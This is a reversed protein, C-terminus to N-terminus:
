EPASLVHGIRTEPDAEPDWIILKDEHDFLSEWGGPLPRDGTVIRDTHAGGDAIAILRYKDLSHIVWYRSEGNVRQKDSVPIFGGVRDIGKLSPWSSIRQDATIMEDPHAASDGITISRVYQVDDITHFIWHWYSSGRPQFDPVPLTADIRRVGKMAAWDALTRNRYEVSSPDGEVGEFSVKNVLTEDDRNHFVWFWSKGEPQQSAPVPIIADVQSVDKFAPLVSLPEEPRVLLDPHQPTEGISIKRTTGWPHFVLLQSAGDKRFSRPLYITVDASRRKLAAQRTAEEKRAQAIMRDAIAHIAKDQEQRFTPAPGPERQASALRTLRFRARPKSDAYGVLPRTIEGALGLTQHPHRVPKTATPTKQETKGWGQYRAHVDVYGHGFVVARPVQAKTYAAQANEWYYRDEEDANAEKLTPQRIFRGGVFDKIMFSGEGQALDDSYNLDDVEKLHVKWQFVADTHWPLNFRIRPRGGHAMLDLYGDFRNGHARVAYGTSWNTQVNGAGEVRVEVYSGNLRDWQSKKGQYQVFCVGMVELFENPDAKHSLGEVGCMELEYTPM